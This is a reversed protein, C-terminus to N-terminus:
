LAMETLERQHQLLKTWCFKSRQGVTDLELCIISSKCSKRIYGKRRSATPQKVEQDAKRADPKLKFNCKLVLKM